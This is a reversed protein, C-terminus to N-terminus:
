MAAKIIPTWRAIESKVLAALPQQGRKAKAPIEGGIDFLRKRVSDDDLAKDLAKTLRDLVPQAIGKPAFLAWWPLAKFEPLGAESAAPVNPLVPHREPAGIAYAKINGAQVHQGISNIGNCMYDCQGAVLASMAPAAGNFPVMTPKVKLLSNLLLVYTFTTSGVGAHSVNLKEANGKAYSIFERLDNPPFDKKAVIFYPQEFVIGIPEFDVDPKYALNPFLPVSFAHTGVNGMLITHGDPRARMVRTSGTTGGAGSVNEIVFPQGLMRSMYEGIVRAAVDTGAGAAFPVIMTVPRSPYSQARAVAPAFPLAAAGAALHLFQRRPFKM